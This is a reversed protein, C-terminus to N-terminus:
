AFSPPSGSRLPAHFSAGRLSPYSAQSGSVLIMTEYNTGGVVIKVQENQSPQPEPPTGGFFGIVATSAKAARLTQKDSGSASTQWEAGLVGLLLASVATLFRIM